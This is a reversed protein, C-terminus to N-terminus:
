ISIEHNQLTAVNISIQVYCFFLFHLVITFSEEFFRLIGAM